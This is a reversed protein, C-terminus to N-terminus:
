AIGNHISNACKFLRREKAGNFWDAGAAM